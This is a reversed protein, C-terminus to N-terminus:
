PKLLSLTFGLPDNRRKALAVLPAYDGAAAALELLAPARGTQPVDDPLLRLAEQLADRARGIRMLLDIYVEITITTDHRPNVQEARERFYALHQDQDQNLLAAFYRGSTEYLSEFPEDGPYQLDNALRRGYETLEHALRLLPPDSVDRALRVVSALHTTDLHYSGEAFLWERTSILERLNLDEPLLVGEVREIHGRVNARLEDYVHHLLLAAGIARDARSRGYMASEFTTIANCTGYHDILRRFGRKLDLGEHICLELFEDLNEECPEVKALEQEILSRDALARLYHWGDRLKGQKWCTLGVERCAALLGTELEDRLREDSGDGLDRALLPLGLRQRVQLKLAEFLEHPRQQQRLYDVLTALAGAEGSQIQAEEIQEFIDTM